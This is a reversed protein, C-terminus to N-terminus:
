ERLVGCSNLRSWGESEPETLFISDSVLVRRCIRSSASERSLINQLAASGFWCSVLCSWDRLSSTAERRRFSESWSCARLSATSLTFLESRVLSLMSCKITLWSDLVCSTNRFAFVFKCTLFCSAETLKGERRTPTDHPRLSGGGGRGGRSDVLAGRLCGEQLADAGFSRMMKENNLWFISSIRARENTPSVNWNLSM